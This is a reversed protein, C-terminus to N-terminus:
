LAIRINWGSSAQRTKGSAVVYQSSSYLLHFGHNFACGEV